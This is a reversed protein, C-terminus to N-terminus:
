LLRKKVTTAAIMGTLATALVAVAITPYEPIVYTGAIEIETSDASFPISLVRVRDDAEVEEFTTVKGDIYVQYDSNFADIIDRQLELRLTGGQPSPSIVVNLTEELQNISMSTVQGGEVFYPIPYTTSGIDNGEIGASFIPNRTVNEVGFSITQSESSVHYGEGGFASSARWIGIIEPKIEDSYSGDNAVILPKTSVSGNPDIYRLNVIEGPLSPSISGSIILKTSVPVTKESAELTLSTDIHNLAGLAHASSGKDFILIYRQGAGIAISTIISTGDTISHSWIITALKADLLYVDAGLSGVVLEDYGNGNLDTVSALPLYKELDQKSNDQGLQFQWVQEGSIAELLVLALDDDIRHIAAVYNTKSSEDELLAMSFFAGGDLLGDGAKMQWIIESSKTDIASLKGYDPGGGGELFEIAVVDEINDGSIDPIKLLNSISGFVDLKNASIESGDSGDIVYLISREDVVIIDDTGDGNYDLVISPSSRFTGDKLGHFDEAHVFEWAKEGEKASLTLVTFRDDKPCIDGSGSVIALDVVGDDDIDSITFAARAVPFCQQARLARDDSTFNWLQNGTAGDLLIMLKDATVAFIEQIDDNNVDLNVNTTVSLWSYSENATFVWIQKGTAGDISYISRGEAAVIVDDIGDGSVDGTISAALTHGNASFDWAEFTSLGQGFSSTVTGSFLTLISAVFIVVRHVGIM